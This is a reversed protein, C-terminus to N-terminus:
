RTRWELAPLRLRADFYGSAWTYQATERMRKPWPRGAIPHVESLKVGGEWIPRWQGVGLYALPLILSLCPLRYIERYATQIHEIAHSFPPNGVVASVHRQRQRQTGGQRHAPECLLRDAFLPAAKTWDMVVGFDVLDLGTADPDLDCGWVECSPWRKRIARVFAGGGVSPEIILEPDDVYRAVNDLCAEALADPTFCRELPDGIEVPPTPARNGFLSPQASM